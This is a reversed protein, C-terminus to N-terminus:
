PIQKQFIVEEKQVKVQLMYLIQYRKLVPLRTVELTNSVTGLKPNVGKSAIVTWSLKGTEAPKIGVLAAIKNLQKHTITAHTNGGNNDASLVYAPKSFDGGLTDFAVQYLTLTGDESLAPEWEFYVSASASAQLVVSKNNVPEYLTQVSTVNLNKLSDDKKCSAFSLVACVFLVIKIYSTKMFYM